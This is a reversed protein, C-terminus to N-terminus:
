RRERRDARWSDDGRMGGLGRWARVDRRTEVVADRSTGDRGRGHRRGVPLALVALLVVLGAVLGAIAWWNM